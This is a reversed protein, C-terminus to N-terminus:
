RNKKTNQKKKLSETNNIKMKKIIKRKLNKM